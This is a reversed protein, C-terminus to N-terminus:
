VFKSNHLVIFKFATACMPHDSTASAILMIAIQHQCFKQNSTIQWCAFLLISGAFMINWVKDIINIMKSWIINVNEAKSGRNIREMTGGVVCSKKYRFDDGSSIALGQDFSTSMKQGLLFHRRGGTSKKGNRRWCNCPAAKLKKTLMMKMRWIFYILKLVVYIYTYLVYLMTLHKWCLESIWVM